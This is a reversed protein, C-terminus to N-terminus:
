LLVLSLVKEELVQRAWNPRLSRSVLKCSAIFLLASLPDGQRVGRCINFVRSRVDTQVVAEQDTYMVELLAVYHSPVGQQELTNWLIHHEVTDFAKEFDVMGLWLPFNFERSREILM